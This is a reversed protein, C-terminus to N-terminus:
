LVGFCLSSHTRGLGLTLPSVIVTGAHLTGVRLNPAAKLSEILSSYIILLFFQLRLQKCNKIKYLLESIFNMM